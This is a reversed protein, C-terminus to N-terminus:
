KIPKKNKNEDQDLDYFLKGNEDKYLKVEECVMLIEQNTEEKSFISCFEEINNALGLFIIKDANM